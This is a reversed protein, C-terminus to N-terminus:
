TGAGASRASGRSPPCGRPRTTGFRAPRFALALHSTLDAGHSRPSRLPAAAGAYYDDHCVFPALVVYLRGYNHISVVYVVTNM